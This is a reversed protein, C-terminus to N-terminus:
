DATSGNSWPESTTSSTTAIPCPSSAAANSRCSASSAAQARHAGSSHPQDARGRRIRPLGPFVHARVPSRRAKGDASAGCPSTSPSASSSRGRRPSGPSRKPSSSAGIKGRGDADARVCAELGITDLVHILQELKAPLPPIEERLFPVLWPQIYSWRAKMAAIPDLEAM